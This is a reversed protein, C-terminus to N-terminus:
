KQPQGPDLKLSLSLGTDSNERGSHGLLESYAIKTVGLRREVASWLTSESRGRWWRWRGCGTYEGSVFRNLVTHM